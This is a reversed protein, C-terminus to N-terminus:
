IGINQYKGLLTERGQQSVKIRLSSDDEKEEEEVGHMKQGVKTIKEVRWRAGGVRWRDFAENYCTPDATHAKAVDAYPSYPTFNRGKQRRTM